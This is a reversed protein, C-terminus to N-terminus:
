LGLLCDVRADILVNYCLYAVLRCRPHGFRGVGSLLLCALLLVVPRAAPVPTCVSACRSQQMQM